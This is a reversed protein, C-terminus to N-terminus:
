KKDTTAPPTGNAGLTKDPAKGDAPKEPPKAPAEKSIEIIGTKLVYTLYPVSCLTAHQRVRLTANLRDAGERTISSRVIVGNKDKEQIDVTYGIAPFMVRYKAMMSSVLPYLSDGAEAFLFTKQFDDVVGPFVGTAGFMGTLVATPVTALSAIIGASAAIDRTTDKAMSTDNRLKRLNTFFENCARDARTYGAAVYAAAPNSEQPYAAELAKWGAEFKSFEEAVQAPKPPADPYLTLRLSDCSTVTLAVLIAGVNVAGTRLRRQLASRPM